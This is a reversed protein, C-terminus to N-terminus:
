AAIQTSMIPTSENCNINQHFVEGTAPDYGPVIRLMQDRSPWLPKSIIGNEQYPIMPISFGKRFEKKVISVYESRNSRTTAGITTKM